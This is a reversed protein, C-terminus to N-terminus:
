SRPAAARPNDSYREFARRRAIETGHALGGLLTADEGARSVALDPLPLPILEALRKRLPELLLDANGGIGVGGGLVVLEPDITTIVSVLARALLDVERDVVRQAGPDGQRAATFVDDASEAGDMGAARAAAVIADTAASSELVGRRHRSESEAAGERTEEGVPLFAIEGAEGHAGRHLRGGIVTGISVGSGISLYVFNRVDRGLGGAQEGLAALDIDNEFTVRDGLEEAMLTVMAPRDWGPLNPALRVRGAAPDFVGPSGVVVSLVDELPTGQQELLDTIM